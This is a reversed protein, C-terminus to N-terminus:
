ETVIGCTRWSRDGEEGSRFGHELQRLDDGAWEAAREHGFEPGLHDLGLQGALAVIEAPEPGRFVADVVPVGDVVAALLDHREVGALRFSLVQNAAQDRQAIDDDLIEPGAHELGPSEAPLLEALKARRQDHRADGGKALGPRQAVAGAEGRDGG